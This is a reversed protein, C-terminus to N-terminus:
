VFQPVDAEVWRPRIGAMALSAMVRKPEGLDNWRLADNEPRCATPGSTL